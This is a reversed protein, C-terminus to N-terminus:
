RIYTHATAVNQKLIKSSESGIFPFISDLIDRLAEFARMATEYHPNIGKMIRQSGAPMMKAYSYLTRRAVAKLGLELLYKCCLSILESLQRNRIIKPMYLPSGDVDQSRLVGFAVEQNFEPRTFFDPLIFINKVNYFM